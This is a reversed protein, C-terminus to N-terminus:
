NCICGPKNPCKTKTSEKKAANKKIPKKIGDAYAAVSSMAVIVIVGLFVKKM